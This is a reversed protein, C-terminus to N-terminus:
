IIFRSLIFPIATEVRLIRPGFDVCSFGLSKFTEIEKDIFGGEPGIAVVSPVGLRKQSISLPSPHAVFGDRNIIINPLENKVFPKFLKHLTVKPLVTDKSQELGLILQEQIRELELVPSNWYSKEVRWTNVLSIRKIGMSAISILIRKLVIPRPLALILHVNLPEPPAVRFSVELELCKEDISVVKGDGMKGGELGVCLIDGQKARHVELVHRLRRGKLHVVKSDGIFDQQQILILNM